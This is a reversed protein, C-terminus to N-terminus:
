VASVGLSRFDIETSDSYGLKMALLPIAFFLLSGIVGIMGRWGQVRTRQAYDDSLGYSWAQLPIELIKWGVYTMAMWIGFYAAEVDQPPHTLKWFGFVSVVAGAIVWEKRTGRRAYTLDALYGILPYTIADIMRTILTMAALATLAIGAHKAYIGQLQGEP